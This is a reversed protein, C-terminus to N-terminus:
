HVTKVATSRDAPVAAFEEDTVTSAPEEDATEERQEEAPEDPKTRDAFIPAEGTAEASLLHDAADPDEGTAGEPLAASKKQKPPVAIDVTQTLALFVFFLPTTLAQTINFFAQVMYCIAGLAAARQYQGGAKLGRRIASIAFLLYAILGLLGHTVLYQLYENHANDLVKDQQKIFEPFYQELLATISEEGAGLLKRTFPLRSYCGAIYKWIEGRGSGWRDNFRLLRDLSGISVTPNVVSFYLFAGAAGVVCVIAAIGVTKRIRPYLQQPPEKRLALIYLATSLVIGSVYFVPSLAIRTLTEVQINGRRFNSRLCAILLCALFFLMLIRLFTLLQKKDSCKTLVFFLFSVALCLYGGECNCILIGIMGIFGAAYWFVTERLSSAEYILFLSFPVALSLYSYYVDKNGLLSIFGTKVSDKTGEYLSFPDLRCFQLFSILNMVILSVGFIVAVPTKFQGFRSVFVYALFIFLFSLLGMNRGLGGTFASSPSIATLCSVVALGIFLLFYLETRNKRILPIRVRERLRRRLILCGIAFFAAAGYFFLTKALTMSFYRDTLFYPGGILFLLIGIGSFVDLASLTKLYRKIM